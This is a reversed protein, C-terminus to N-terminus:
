ILYGSQDEDGNGSEPETYAEPLEETSRQTPETYAESLQRANDDELGEGDLGAGGQM